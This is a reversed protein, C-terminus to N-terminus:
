TRIGPGVSSPEGATARTHPTRRPSCSPPDRVVDRRLSRETQAHKAGVTQLQAAVRVPAGVRFHDRIAM